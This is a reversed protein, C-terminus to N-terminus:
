EHTQDDASQPPTTERLLKELRAIEARWQQRQELWSLPRAADIQEDTIM